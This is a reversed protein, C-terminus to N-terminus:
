HAPCSKNYNARAAILAQTAAQSQQLCEVSLKKCTPGNVRNQAAAADQEAAQLASQLETCNAPAPPCAQTFQSASYAEQFEISPPSGAYACGPLNLMLNNMEGTLDTRQLIPANTSGNEIKLQVNLDAGENLVVTHGGSYGFINFEAATWGLALRMTEDPFSVGYILGDPYVVTIEDNGFAKTSGRIIIASLDGVSITPMVISPSFFMCGTSTPGWKSTFPINPLTPVGSCSQPIFPNPLEIFLSYEILAYANTTSADVIFQAWGSCTTGTIHKCAPTSFAGTNLQLSFVGNVGLTAAGTVNAVRQFSGEAWFIPASSPVGAVVDTGGGVLRKRPQKNFVPQRVPAPGRTSAEVCPMERWATEPYSAVFCGAKPFNMALIRTNWDARAHAEAPSISHSKQTAPTSVEQVASQAMTPLAHSSVAFAFAVSLRQLIRTKLPLGTGPSHLRM